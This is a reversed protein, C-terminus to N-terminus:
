EVEVWKLVRVGKPAGASFLSEVESACLARSYVRVDDILGDWYVSKSGLGFIIRDVGDVTGGLVSGQDSLADVEGDIYLVPDSGSYWVLVLHQWSTTQTNSTSEFNTSGDTTDIAGKVLSTGGGAWGDKDYRLSLKNDGGDPSADTDFIDRDVNTLNSKVWLSVTVADAGVLLSGINNNVAEGSSGDFSLAGDILGETWATGGSITADLGNPSADAATSGSTEDFKWHAVLGSLAAVEVGTLRYNYIRFDDLQGDLYRDGPTNETTRGGLNLDASFSMDNSDTTGSSGGTDDEGDIFVRNNAPSDADLLVAFHYWRDADWSTRGTWTYRYAGSSGNIKFVLSGDSPAGNTYDQGVLVLHMNNAGSAFKELVVQSSATSDDFDANLKFWGALTADGSFNLSDDAPINVYSSAGQLDLYGGGDCKTFWQYSGQISGDNGSAESDSVTGGAGDDFTWRSVLMSGQAYEVHLLPAKSSNGDHAWAIRNGDEDDSRILIVLDNGEAWGGRDVIEQIITTIEPTQYKGGTSWNPVNNWSVSASTRPRNSISNPTPPKFDQADDVDEGFITLHTTETKDTESTFEVYASTITAGQPITLSRFRFGNWSMQGLQVKDDDFTVGGGSDQDADDFKNSVRIELTDAPAVHGFGLLCLATAISITTRATNTRSARRLCNM